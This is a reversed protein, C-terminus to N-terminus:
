LGFEDSGLAGPAADLVDLELGQVVGVPEVVLSGVFGEVVEGWHCGLFKM